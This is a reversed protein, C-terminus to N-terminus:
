SNNCLMIVNIGYDKMMIFCVYMKVMISMYKFRSGNEKKKIMNFSQFKKLFLFFQLFSIFKQQFWFKVRVIDKVIVQMFMSVIEMYFMFCFFFNRLLFFFYLEFKFWNLLQQIIQIVLNYFRVLFFLWFQDDFNGFFLFVFFCGYYLDDCFICKCVFFFWEFVVNVVSCLM